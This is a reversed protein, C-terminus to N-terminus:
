FNLNIGLTITRANPTGNWDTGLINGNGLYSTIEPNYGSYDTITLLNSGSLYINARSFLNSKAVPLDYALTVNSIRFYSGNEVQRDSVAASLEEKNYGIRPYTNSPADARWAGEYADRTINNFYDGHAYDNKVNTGNIIQNGSVGNMLVNLSLGKYNMTLYGGYIFDPNPDGIITRDAADIVGDANQDVHRVDGPQYDAVDIQDGTQYIGDTQYGYFLGVSEGEIFINAPARFYLGSSVNDGLYFSRDQPAGDIYIESLPNGLKTIENKSFAINGGLELSFDGRNIVTGGLTFEIGESKLSGRNVLLNPFGASPALVEQQLLNDTEKSYVDIAGTFRNNLFGFDLGVNIQTTTEWILNPNAINSPAFGIETGNEESALTVGGYNAFTQYASIAQNGVQGWGARVKLDSLADANELFKENNARWAVSFSPYYGYRNEESFKSSGDIRYTGTVVYKNDLSYTARTLYSLLQTKPPFTNFPQIISQGLNPSDAGFVVSSFDSVGFVAYENDTVDYTIGAVANVRHKRKFTRNYNLLNNIQYSKSKLNSMTLYGNTARGWYTTLGYFRTRDKSRMNGGAQFNYSLGKVNFKYTLGLSGIFRTEESVDEFDNIWSYPKFYGLLDFGDEGVGMLPRYTLVSSTFSRQQGGARDGDQAFNGEAYFASLKANVKLKPSLNQNVTISFNGKQFRSNEIIGGQDDYGTSIYYNGKDSGGSFSAGASHSYGLQYIEDQWNVQRSQTDSIVNERSIPYIEGESIHYRPNGANLFAAENVYNVFELGNLMEIKTDITSVSSSVYGSITAKGSKGKKTTILIVGNAGRSGYIATASADKLVEMKEIDRPNIGNLGNQSEQLSNGDGANRVDQGASAIIIGDVVYLPENNSRLSSAGRIRVSIGSNPSGGNQIVRVGAARGQLLQDVTSSQQAATGDVNVSTVAGTLDSKRQTGYGVVVVEDLSTKDVDLKVIYNSSETIVVTKDKYGIFSVVVEKANENISFKFVGDFDTTGGEYSGSVIINAGPLPMNNEDLVKGSIERNQSFLLMPFVLAFYFIMLKKM